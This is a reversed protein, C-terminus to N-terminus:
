TLTKLFMYCACFERGSTVLRKKKISEASIVDKALKLSSDGTPKSKSEKEKISPLEM